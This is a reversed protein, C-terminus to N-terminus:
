NSIIEFSNGKLTITVKGQDTRYAHGFNAQFKADAFRAPLEFDITRESRDKNLIVIVAKDFYSRMYVWTREGAELTRFDGYLLPMSNKRLQVLQRTIAKTRAEQPSLSDFRMMRRNDPDGAGPMGFEDGYYIVPIGPVTMNFAMLMSLKKYGTTDKVEIDRDWGAAVADESPSLAGSAYSIFRALDQNGTINGMVHHNGFYFFTEYLSANLDKLSTNDQSFATVADFYVSFDFQADMMGPTIYSKILERSGFTEGIQYVARKEPIVVQDNIKKTLTRWYIEPVHKAADHRFGDIGYERIWYVQSDSMMEYVEPKSLDLTPLFEDFWTTLRQENWLRINKKGGPLNLITAWDPHQRYIASEQHVHNSAYDLIVNMNKDHAEGVLKKLEGSTGFRTDVTTLTIPWYGHYGSFKRHPAPYERWADLPNQTLPSIWITNVGLDTFYGDDTKQIIGALDGGFFNVKPDLEKDILPADNEKSGNVFRDIMLFYIIMAHPDTRELKVPSQVVERGELPVLIENSIGSGNVAYVRIASRDFRLAAGPITIHILNSDIRFFKEDLRFNQWLVFVEEAKSRMGVTVKEKEAKVTYLFPAGPPNVSGIHAVSNTGLTEKCEPDQTWKGDAVFKYQYKGPNVLVDAEWKGDKLKMPNRGPNWDNMDGALHVAKYKKEKPDFVFRYWLKPSKRVLLSYKYGGAWVDMVSLKPINRSAPFLTLTSSDASIIFGLSPDTRVSDIANPHRFYDNLVLFTSDPQLTVPAALAIIEPEDAVPVDNRNTCSALFLLAVSAILSLFNFKM